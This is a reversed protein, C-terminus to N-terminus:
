CIEDLVDCLGETCQARHPHQNTRSEGGGRGLETVAFQAAWGSQLLAENRRREIACHRSHQLSAPIKVEGLESAANRRRAQITRARPPASPQSQSQECITEPVRRASRRVALAACHYTFPAVRHASGRRMGPRADTSWTLLPKRPWGGGCLPM